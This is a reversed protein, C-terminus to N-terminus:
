GATLGNDSSGVEAASVVLMAAVRDLLFNFLTHRLVNDEAIYTSSYDLPDGEGRVSKM